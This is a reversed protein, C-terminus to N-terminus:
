TNSKPVISSMLSTRVTPHSNMAAIILPSGQFDNFDIQTHNTMLDILELDMPNRADNM